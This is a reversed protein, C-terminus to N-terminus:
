VPLRSLRSPDKWEGHRASEPIELIAHQRVPPFASSYVHEGLQRSRSSYYPRTVFGPSCCPSVADSLSKTVVPFGQRYGRFGRMVYADAPLLTAFYRNLPVLFRETLTSMCQVLLADAGHDQHSAFPVLPFRPSVLKLSAKLVHICPVWNARGRPLAASHILQAKRVTVSRWGRRLWNSCAGTKTSMGSAHM